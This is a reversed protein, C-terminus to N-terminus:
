KCCVKITVSDPKVIKPKTTVEADKIEKITDKASQCSAM